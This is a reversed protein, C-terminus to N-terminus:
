FPLEEDPRLDTRQINDVVVSIVSQLVIFTEGPFKRALREAECKADHLSRQHYQPVHATPNWVFWFPSTIKM